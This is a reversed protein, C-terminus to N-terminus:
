FYNSNNKFNHYCFRNFGYVRTLTNHHISKSGIYILVSVLVMIVNGSRCVQEVDSNM